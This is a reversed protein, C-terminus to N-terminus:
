SGKPPSLTFLLPQIPSLPGRKGKRSNCSRCAPVINSATHRGGYIVPTIHDMTLRRPKKGCYACRFKHVAQIEHWQATTLDNLGNTEIHWQRKHRYGAMEVPHEKQWQRNKELIRERNALYHLRFYVKLTLKNVSYWKKQHSIREERHAQYNLATQLSLKEKNKLYYGQRYAQFEKVHATQWKKNKEDVREKNEQYFTKWYVSIEERNEQYYHAKQTARHWIADAKRVGMASLLEAKKLLTEEPHAVEHITQERRKADRQAIYFAHKSIRNQEPDKYPM